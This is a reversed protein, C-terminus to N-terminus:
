AGNRWFRALFKILHVILQVYINYITVYICACESVQCLLLNNVDVGIKKAYVPDLAHEVDVFAANGLTYILSKGAISLLYVISIVEM